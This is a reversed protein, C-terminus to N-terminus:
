EKLTLLIDWLRKFGIADFIEGHLAPREAIDRILKDNMYGGIRMPSGPFLGIYAPPM